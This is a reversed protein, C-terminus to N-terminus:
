PTPTLSSFRPAITQFYVDEAGDRTSSWFMWITAPRRNTVSNFIQNLPDLAMELGGENGVFEIPVAQEEYEPVRDVVGGQSVNFTSTGALDVGLYSVEISAGEADAMLYIRGNVPDIQYYRAEAPVSGWNTVQFDIPQGSNADTAVAAPLQLGFRYSSLFPRTQSLESSTRTSAVVTRDWRVPDNDAPNLPVNSGDYWYALNGFLPTFPAEFVGVFRDDYLSDVSRYNAGEGSSIRLLGPTYRVFLQSSRRILANPLRVSGDRTNVYAKGGLDTDYSVVGTDRNFSRTTHDLISVLNGGDLRYVDV